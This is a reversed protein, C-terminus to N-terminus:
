DSMSKVAQNLFDEDKLIQVAYRTNQSLMIGAVLHNPEQLESLIKVLIEIDNETLNELLPVGPLIRFHQLAERLAQKRPTSRCIANQYTTIFANILQAVERARLLPFVLISLILAIVIGLLIAILGLFKAVAIAILSWIVTRGIFSFWFNDIIPFRDGNIAKVSDIFIFYEELSDFCAKTSGDAQVRFADNCCSLQVWAQWMDKPILGLTVIFLFIANLKHQNLVRHIKFM